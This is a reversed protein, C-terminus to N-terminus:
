TALSSLRFGGFRVLHPVALSGFELRDQFIDTLQDVPDHHLPFRFELATCPGRLPKLQSQITMQSSLSNDNYRITLRINVFAITVPLDFNLVRGAPKDGGKFRHHMRARTNPNGMAATGGVPIHNVAVPCM